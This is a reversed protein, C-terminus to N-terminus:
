QPKANEQDHHQAHQHGYTPWRQFRTKRDEVLKQILNNKPILNWSNRIYKPYYGSILYM